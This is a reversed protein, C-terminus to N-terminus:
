KINATTDPDILVKTNRIEEFKNELEHLQELAEIATLGELASWDVAVHKIPPVDSGEGRVDEIIDVLEIDFAQKFTTDTDYLTKADGSSWDDYMEKFADKILNHTSSQIDNKDLKPLAIEHTKTVEDVTYPTDLEQVNPAETVEALRVAPVEIASEQINQIIEQQEHALQVVFEGLTINNKQAESLLEDFNPVTGQLGRDLQQVISRCLTEAEAGMTIPVNDTKFTLSKNADFIDEMRAHSLIGWNSRIDQYQGQLTPSHEFVGDKFFQEIHPRSQQGQYDIGENRLAEKAQALDEKLTAPEDELETEPQTDLEAVEEESADETKRLAELSEEAVSSPQKEQTETETPSTEEINPTPEPPVKNIDETEEPLDELEADPIGEHSSTPTKSEDDFVTVDQSEPTTKSSEDFVKTKQSEEPASVKEETSATKQSEELVPVEDTQENIGLVDQIEHEVLERDIYFSYSDNALVKNWDGNQVHLKEEMDPHAELSLRIRHAIEGKQTETIDPYREEIWDNGELFQQLEREVSSGKEYVGEMKLAEPEEMSVEYQNYLDRIELNALRESEHLEATDGAEPMHVAEDNQTPLDGAEPMHTDKSAEVEGAEATHMHVGESAREGEEFLASDGDEVAPMRTNEPIVAENPAEETVDKTAEDTETPSLVEENTTEEVTAKESAPQTEEPNRTVIEEKKISETEQEITHEPATESPKSESTSVVEDANKNEPKQEIKDESVNNAGSRGEPEDHTQVGASDPLFAGEFVTEVGERVGGGVALASIAAAGSSVGKKVRVERNIKLREKRSKSLKTEEFQKKQKELKRKGSKEAVKDGFRKTEFAAIGGFFGGAFRSGAAVGGAALGAVTLGPGLAVGAVGAIGSAILLRKKRPCNKYYNWWKKANRLVMNRSEGKKDRNYRLSELLQVENDIHRDLLAEHRAVLKVYRAKESENLAKGVGVYADMREQRKNRLEDLLTDYREQAKLMANEEEQIPTSDFIKIKEFFGMDRKAQWYTETASIFVERAEDIKKRHEKYKERAEIRRQKTEADHMQEEPVNRDDEESQGINREHVEKPEEENAREKPEETKDERESVPVADEPVTDDEEPKFVEQTEKTIVENDAKTEETEEAEDKKDIELAEVSKGQRAYYRQVLTDIDRPARKKDGDSPADNHGIPEQEPTNM